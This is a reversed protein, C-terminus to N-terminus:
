SLLDLLQWVEGLGRSSGEQFPEGSEISHCPLLGSSDPSPSSYLQDAMFLKLMGM